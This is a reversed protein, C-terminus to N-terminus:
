DASRVRERAWARLEAIKEGMTVAIPRTSTVEQMLGKSTLPTRSSFATFLAAV